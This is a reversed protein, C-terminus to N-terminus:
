QFGGASKRQGKICQFIHSRIVGCDEEAEKLSPYEMLLKGKRDFKLVPITYDYSVRRSGVKPGTRKGKRPTKPPLPSVDTIGDKFAPDDKFRWQFGGAKKYIKNASTQIGSSLNGTKRAAEVISEYENVFTGDLAFQYIGRLHRSRPAKKVAGINPIEEADKMDKKFRWQSDGAVPIEGKLCRMITGKSVGSIRTAENLSSHKRLFNGKMNFQMVPKAKHFDRRIVPPLAIIGNMFLPDSKLRWQYGAATLCEGALCRNFGNSGFGVARSAHSIS